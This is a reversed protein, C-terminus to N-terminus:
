ANGRDLPLRHVPPDVEHHGSELGFRKGTGKPERALRPQDVHEVGAAVPLRLLVLALGLGLAAAVGDGELHRKVIEAFCLYALRLLTVEFGHVHQACKGDVCSKVSGGVINALEGIADALDAEEVYSEPVHLMHSALSLAGETTTAVMVRGQWGGSIDVFATVVDEPLPADEDLPIEFLSSWIDDVLGRLDHSELMLSSMGAREVASIHVFVDRSGDNPTIFGFGKQTNFFKVTGVPM